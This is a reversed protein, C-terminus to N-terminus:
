IRNYILDGPAARLVRRTSMSATWIAVGFLIVVLGLVNGSFVELNMSMLSVERADLEKMSAVGIRIGEILLLCSFGVAVARALLTGIILAYAQVMFKRTVGFARFTGLNQKIHNLHSKVLNNIFIAVAAVAFVLLMLGLVNTLVSVINFNKLSEVKNLDLEIGLRGMLVESVQQISDLRTFGLSFWNYKDNVGGRKKPSRRPFVYEGGMLPDLSYYQDALNTFLTRRDQLDLGDDFRMVIRSRHSEAGQADDTRVQVEKLNPIINMPMQMNQIADAIARLEQESRRGRVWFSTSDLSTNEQFGADDEVISRQLEPSTFFASRSPLRKVVAVVNLFPALYPGRSVAVKRPNRDEGFLFRYLEEEMVIGSRWMREENGRYSALLSDRFDLVLQKGFINSMLVTDEVPNMTRGIVGERTDWLGHFTMSYRFFGTSKDMGWRMEESWRDLSDKTRDYERDNNFKMTVPFDVWKVFPDDMRSQLFRLGSTAFAVGLMALFVFGPLTLRKGWGGDDMARFENRLFMREGENFKMM